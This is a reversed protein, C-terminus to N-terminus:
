ARAARGWDHLIQRAANHGPGGTIGGGPHASSGVLYLNQIPTRYQGWGPVPRLFAQQDLSMEGQYIHGGTLGFKEEIDVPTLVQEALIATRLGPMLEDLRDVVRDAFKGKETKWDGRRLHYPAFQALISMVHQGSPALSPDLLSPITVDFYPHASAKGYKADDYARELYELTPGYRIRPAAVGDDGKLKPLSSLALNIKAVAGEMRMHQIRRQVELELDAPALLGLLTRKADASSAVVQAAIAEGSELQVGTARGDTTTIRAVAADTRITVGAARAAAAIADTLVGTGGRVIAWASGHVAPWFRHLVGFSTGPSWPGAWRGLLADVSLTAKLLETEFWEGLSARLAMQPFRLAQGIAWKGLRRARLAFRLYYLMEGTGMALANPPTRMMIPDLTAALGVLFDHFKIYADADKASFKAIEAAAKAPDNWLRLIRGDEGISTVVPDVPILQLGHQDLQLDRVVEPRLMGVLAAGTPARFGPRIEETTAPGGLVSRRELVAVRRGARGLYTAAVLGNHGGGIVVVDYGDAM